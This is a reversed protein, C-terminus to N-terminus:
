QLVKTGVSSSFQADEPIFLALREAHSIPQELSSKGKSAQSDSLDNTASFISRVYIHSRWIKRPDRFPQLRFAFMFIPM